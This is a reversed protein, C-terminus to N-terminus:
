HRRAGSLTVHVALSDSKVPVFLTQKVYVYCGHGLSVARNFPMIGGPLPILYIGPILSRQTNSVLRRPRTTDQKRQRTPPSPPANRVTIGRTPIQYLHRSILRLNTAYTRPETSSVSLPM